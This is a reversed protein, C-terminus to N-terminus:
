ISLPMPALTQRWSTDELTRTRHVALAHLVQRARATWSHAAIAARQRLRLADREEDHALYYRVVRGLSASDTYTPVCDGYIDFLEARADSILFGGCAPAEYCRPNLSEAYAIHDGTGAHATTRHHCVSIKAARYYTATVDNPTIQALLAATPKDGQYDLSREVFTIGTWDVSDFLAAREPFRTGAFFVDCSAAQEGDPTHTLPNYAHPLYHVTDPRNNTFQTVATRENTFVLDYFQALQAEQDTQYPSETCLLATTYGGRRLTAPISAPVNLGHVVIVAEVQKAMAYGPVGMSAMHYVDPYGGPPAIELLRAAGVILEMSELTAMLPYEVVEVGNAKLGACLGNHVDLTSFAHGPAVVM